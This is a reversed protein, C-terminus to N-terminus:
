SLDLASSRTVSGITGTAWGGQEFNDIVRRGYGEVYQHRVRVQKNAVEEPMWDGTLYYRYASQDRLHWRFFANSYALFVAHHKAKATVPGSCNTDRWCNHNAKDVFLMLKDIPDAAPLFPPLTDVESGSRDFLSFGTRMPPGPVVRCAVDELSLWA